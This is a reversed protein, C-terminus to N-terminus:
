AWLLPMREVGTSYMDAWTQWQRCSSYPCSCPSHAPFNVPERRRTQLRLRRAIVSVAAIKIEPHRAGTGPSPYKPKSQIPSRAVGPKTRVGLNSQSVGAGLRELKALEHHRTDVRDFLAVAIESRGPNLAGLCDREIIAPGGIDGCVLGGPLIRLMPLLPGVGQLSVGGGDEALERHACDVRAEHYSGDLRDPGRLRLRRPPHAAPDLRNQIPRLDPAVSCALVGRSPLAVEVVDEPPSSRRRRLRMLSENVAIQRLWGWFPADGRFDSLRDILKLMTDQLIDQAEERQGTLRGLALAARVKEAGSPAGKARKLLQVQARTALGGAAGTVGAAAAAAVESDPDELVRLLADEVERPYPRLSRLTLVALRRVEPEPDRQAVRALVTVLDLVWVGARLDLGARDLALAVEKRVPLPGLELAGVLAQRVADEELGLHLLLDLAPERVEKDPDALLPAVATALESATAGDLKRLLLAANLRVTLNPDGLLPKLAPGANRAHDSLRDLAETANVRVAAAPDKLAALLAPVGDPIDLIGLSRAAVARMEPDKSTALQQALKRAKEAPSDARAPAALFAACLFLAPTSARL